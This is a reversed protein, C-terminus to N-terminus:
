CQCEGDEVHREGNIVEFTILQDGQPPINEFVHLPTKKKIGGSADSAGRVYLITGWPMISEAAGM